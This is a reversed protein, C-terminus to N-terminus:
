RREQLVNFPDNLGGSPPRLTAGFRDLLSLAVGNTWGFGM